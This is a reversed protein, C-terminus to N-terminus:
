LNCTYFGGTAAGHRAWDGGCVWCFHQQCAQLLLFHPHACAPLHAHQIRHPLWLAASAVVHVWHQLGVVHVWHQLGAALTSAVVHVWHQLGAALTAAHVHGLLQSRRSAAVERASISNKNFPPFYHPTTPHVAYCRLLCALM